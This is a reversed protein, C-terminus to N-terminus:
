QGAKKNAVFFIVGIIIMRFMASRNQQLRRKKQLARTNAQRTKKDDDSDVAYDCTEYEDVTALGGEIRDLIKILKNRSRIDKIIKEIESEIDDITSDEM